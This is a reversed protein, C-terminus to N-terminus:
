LTLDLHQYWQERTVGWGKAIRGIRNWLGAITKYKELPRGDRIIANSADWISVHDHPHRRRYDKFVEAIKADTYHSPALKGGKVANVRNREIMARTKEADPWLFRYDYCCQWFIRTIEEQSYYLNAKGAADSAKPDTFGPPTIVFRGFGAAECLGDAHKSFGEGVAVGASRLKDVAGKFAPYEDEYVDLRVPDGASIGAKIERIFDQESRAEIYDRMGSVAGSLKAGPNAGGLLMVGDNLNIKAKKM